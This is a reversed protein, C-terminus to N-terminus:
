KIVKKIFLDTLKPDFQTGKCRLLEEIAEPKSLQAKYDRFSTMADYADAIAIMRAELTIDEGSLGKPYGKGDYYEHHQYVYNAIIDMDGISHIIKYGKEPHTKIIRYESDSLKGKKNLIENSITIKGLDHLLGATKVDNLKKGTFGYAKALFFAYDSVRQSHEESVYDKEYLTTLLADIIKNRVSNSESIKYLYMEDEAQKLITDLNLNFDLRTAIGYSISPTVNGVKEKSIRVLVKQMLIEAEEHTTNTLFIAFEDGGIRAVFDHKNTISEELVLGLRKLVENGIHHGFSDNVIKLGNIDIIVVSTPLYEQLDFSERQESYFRRNYVGTLHDHLSQYVLKEQEVKLISIDHIVGNVYIPKGDKDVELSAVSNIYHEEGLGNVIMFTVNYPKNLTILDTLAQDLTSRDNSVVMSQIAKLDIINDDPIELGYIRFAQDSAWIKHSEIELEWTGVKGIDQSKSLRNYGESLEEYLEMEREKDKILSKVLQNYPNILNEKVVLFMLICLAIYNMVPSIYYIISSSSLNFVFLFESVLMLSMSITFIIPLKCELNKSFACRYIIAIYLIIFFIQALVRFLTNTNNVIMQPMSGTLVLYVLPVSVLLSLVVRLFLSIKGSKDFVATFLGLVLIFEAVVKFQFSADPTLSSFINMGPFAITHLFLIIAYIFLSPSLRSLVNHKSKAVTLMGILSTIVAIIVMAFGISLHYLLSNINFFYYLVILLPLSVGLLVQYIM